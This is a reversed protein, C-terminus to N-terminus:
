IKYCMWLRLQIQGNMEETIGKFSASLRLEDFSIVQDNSKSQQCFTKMNGNPGVNPTSKTPKTNKEAVFVFLFHLLQQQM